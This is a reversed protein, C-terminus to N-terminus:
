SFCRLVREKLTPSILRELQLGPIDTAHQINFFLVYTRRRPACPPLRHLSPRQAPRHLLFKIARHPANREVFVLDPFGQGKSHPSSTLDVHAPQELTFLISHAIDVNQLAERPRSDLLPSDLMGPEVVTVRTDPDSVEQRMAEGM